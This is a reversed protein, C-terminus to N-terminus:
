ANTQTLTLIHEPHVDFSEWSGCITEAKWLDGLASHDLVSRVISALPEPVVLAVIGSKRKRLIKELAACVRRRADDLMEGEPPCVTEPNEQWQRYVKRQTQRVEDILKGQWLGHDLNRLPNFLKCKAGLRHGLLEATQEAARCPSAYIRDIPVLSLEEALAAVQATGEANLPIDLNGKIRGQQDYDTTGPRVLIVRLM